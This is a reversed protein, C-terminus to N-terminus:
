FCARASRWTACRVPGRAQLRAASAAAALTLLILLAYARAERAYFIHPGSLAAFLAAWLAAEADHLSRVADYLLLISLVSFVVSLGRAVGEGDGFIERWGRLLLHYLPPYADRRIMGRIADGVPRRELISTERPPPQLLVNLPPVSGVYGASAAQSFLEDQWFAERGLQPLRVAAALLLILALLARRLGSPLGAERSM